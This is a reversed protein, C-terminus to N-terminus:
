QVQISFHIPKSIIENGERSRAKIVITHNGKASLRFPETYLFEPASDMQIYLSEITSNAPNRSFSILSRIPYISRKPIVSNPQVEEDVKQLLLFRELVISKYEVRVEVPLEVNSSILPVSDSIILSRNLKDFLAADFIFWELMNTAILYKININNHQIREELFYLVLQYMAKAKLNGAQVMDPDTKTSPKKTEFIVVPQDDQYIALDIRGKTNIDNKGNYFTDRFFDRVLNKANEEHEAPNIKSLYEVLNKKFLDLESKGIKEIQYSVSLSEQITQQQILKM